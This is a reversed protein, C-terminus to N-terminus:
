SARLRLTVRATDQGLQSFAIAVSEFGASHRERRELRVEFPVDLETFKLFEASGGACWLGAAPDLVLHALQLSCDFLHGANVHDGSGTHFRHGPHLARDTSIYADCVFVGEVERALSLFSHDGKELGVAEGSAFAAPPSGNAALAKARSAARWAEVDFDTFAFGAGHTAAVLAGSGTRLELEFGPQGALSRPRCSGVTARAESDDLEACEWTFKTLATFTSPDSHQAALLATVAGFYQYKEILVPHQAPLVLWPWRERDLDYALEICDDAVSTTRAFNHAYVLADM